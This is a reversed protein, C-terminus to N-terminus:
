ILSPLDLALLYKISTIREGGDKRSILSVNKLSRLATTSVTSCTASGLRHRQRIQLSSSATSSCTLRIIMRRLLTERWFSESSRCWQTAQHGLCMRLNQAPARTPKNRTRFSDIMAAVSGKFWHFLKFLRSADHLAADDVAANFRSMLSRFALSDGSSFKKVPRSEQARQLAM